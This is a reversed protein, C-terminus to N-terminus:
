PEDRVCLARAGRWQKGIPAARSKKESWVLARTGFADSETISWYVGREVVHDVTLTHLEGLTPLRWGGQGAGNMKECQAAAADFARKPPHLPAYVIGAHEGLRGRSEAPRPPAAAEPPAESEAADITPAEDESPVPAATSPTAVETEDPPTEAATQEAGGPSSVAVVLAVLVLAGAGAGLMRARSQTVWGGTARVIPRLSATVMRLRDLSGRRPTPPLPQAFAPPPAAAPPHAPALPLAPAPALPLPQAFAPPHAPAPPHASAPPPAPASSPPQAPAPPQTRAAVTPHPKTPVVSPASTQSPPVISLTRRPGTPERSGARRGPSRTRLVPQSGTPARPQSVPPVAAVREVLAMPDRWDIELEVIAEPPVGARELATLMRALRPAHLSTSRALVFISEAGHRQVHELLAPTHPQAGEFVSVRLGRAGLLDLAPELAARDGAACCVALHRGGADASGPHVSVAKPCRGFV